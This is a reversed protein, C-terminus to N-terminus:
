YNNKEKTIPLILAFATISLPTVIGGHFHIGKNIGVGDIHVNNLM